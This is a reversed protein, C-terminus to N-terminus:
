NNFYLQGKGHMKNERWEGQYYCGDKYYFVGYGDRMGNKITGKYKTGIEYVVEHEGTNLNIDEKSPSEDSMEKITSNLKKYEIVNFHSSEDQDEKLKSPPRTQISYIPTEKIILDISNKNKEEKKPDGMIEINSIEESERSSNQHISSLSM